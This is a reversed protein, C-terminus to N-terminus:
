LFSKEEKNVIEIVKEKNGILDEYATAEDIYVESLLGVFSGQIGIGARIARRLLRRTIYGADSNAPAAGDNILFTAARVHDLIIRFSKLDDTYSQGSLEMLKNKPNLFFATNYIDKDGNLATAVRELGGGYDLNPNQMKKRIRHRRQHLM